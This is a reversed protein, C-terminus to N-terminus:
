YAFFVLDMNADTASDFILNVEDIYYEERAYEKDNDLFMRRSKVLDTVAVSHFEPWDDNKQYRFLGM